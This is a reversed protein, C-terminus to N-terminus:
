SWVAVSYQLICKIYLVYFGSDLADELNFGIDDLLFFLNKCVNMM